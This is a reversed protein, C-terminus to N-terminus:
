LCLNIVVLFQKIKVVANTRTKIPLSKYDGFATENMRKDDFACYITHKM